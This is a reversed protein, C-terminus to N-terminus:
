ASPTPPPPAGELASRAAVADAIGECRVTKGRGGIIIDGRRDVEVAVVDARAIEAEVKKGDLALVRRDTIGYRRARWWAIRFLENTAITMAIFGLYLWPSPFHVTTTLPRSGGNKFGFSYYGTGTVTLNFLDVTWTQTTAGHLSVLVITIPVALMLAVFVVYFVIMGPSIRHGHPRGEWLLREGPALVDEVELPKRM